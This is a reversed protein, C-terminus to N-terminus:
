TDLESIGCGCAALRLRRGDPSLLRFSRLPHRRRREPQRHETGLKRQPGVSLFDWAAKSPRPATIHHPLPSLGPPPRQNRLMVRLRHSLFLTPLPSTRMLNRHATTLNWGPTPGYGPYSYFSTWAPYPQPVTPAVYWGPMACLCPCALLYRHVFYPMQGRALGSASWFLLVLLIGHRMPLLGIGQNM